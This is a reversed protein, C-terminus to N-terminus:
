LSWKNLSLRTAWSSSWAGYHFHGTPVGGLIAAWGGLVTWARIQPQTSCKDQVAHCKVVEFTLRVRPEQCYHLKGKFLHLPPVSLFICEKRELYLKSAALPPWTKQYSSCTNPLLQGPSGVPSPVQSWDGWNGLGRKQPLTFHQRKIWHKFCASNTYPWRDV